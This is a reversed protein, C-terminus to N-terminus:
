SYVYIFAYLLHHVLLREGTGRKGREFSEKWMIDYPISRGKPWNLDATRIRNGVMEKPGERVKM